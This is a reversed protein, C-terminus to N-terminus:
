LGLWNKISDWIGRGSSAGEGVEPKKADVLIYVSEGPRALPFRERLEAEMGRPTALSDITYKLDDRRTALDAAELTAAVRDRSAAREKQYVEAVAGAMVLSFGALGAALVWLGAM